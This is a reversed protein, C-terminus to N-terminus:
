RAERPAGAAPRAPRSPLQSPAAKTWSEETIPVNPTSSGGSSACAATIVLASVALILAGLKKKMAGRWDFGSFGTNPSSYGASRTQIARRFDEEALRGRRGPGGGSLKCLHGSVPPRTRHTGASLSGELFGYTM